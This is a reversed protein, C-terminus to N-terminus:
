IPNVPVASQRNLGADSPRSSPRLNAEARGDAHEDVGGENPM